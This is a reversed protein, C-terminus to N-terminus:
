DGSGFVKDWITMKPEQVEAIRVKCIGDAYRMRQLKCTEQYHTTEHQDEQHVRRWLPSMTDKKQHWEGPVYQLLIPYATLINRFTFIAAEYLHAPTPFSNLLTDLGPLDQTQTINRLTEWYKEIEIRFDLISQWRAMDRLEANLVHTTSSRTDDLYILSALLGDIAMIPNTSSPSETDMPM